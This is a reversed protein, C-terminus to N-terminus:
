RDPKLIGVIILRAENFDYACTVLSVIRDNATVEIGSEFISVKYLNEIYKMFEDDDAFHFPPHDRFSHAIHGAFVEIVYDRKPTHLDIVPNEILFEQHRYNKLAGFMDGARTEHGYILISKDSFDPSNRYDLFISGNRHPTGDPLHNLFHDNDTYQMVPYNIPTDGLIIWGVTGPYTENVTEFDVYPVWENIKDTDNTNTGRHSNPRREIRATMNSYFSRSQSDISLENFILYGFVGMAAICIVLFILLIIKKM